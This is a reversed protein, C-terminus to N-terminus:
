QGYCLFGQERSAVIARGGQEIIAGSLTTPLLTVDFIDFIGDPFIRKSSSISSAVLKTLDTPNIPATPTSKKTEESCGILTVVVLCVVICEVLTQMKKSM